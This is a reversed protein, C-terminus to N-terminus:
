LTINFGGVVIPSSGGGSPASAGGASADSQNDNDEIEIESDNQTTGTFMKPNLLKNIVEDCASFSLRAMQKANRTIFVPIYYSQEETFTTLEPKTNVRRTSDNISLPINILGKGPAVGDMVHIHNDSTFITTTGTLSQNLVTGSPAQNNVVSSEYYDNFVDSLKQDSNYIEAFETTTTNGTLYTFFDNIISENNVDDALFARVNSPNVIGGGLGQVNNVQYGGVVTLTSASSTDTTATFSSNILLTHRQM